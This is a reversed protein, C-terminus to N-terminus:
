IVMFYGLKEMGLDEFIVWIQIKPKFVCWRAVRIQIRFNQKQQAPHDSSNPLFRGFHFGFHKLPLSLHELSLTPFPHYHHRTIMATNSDAHLLLRPPVIAGPVLGVITISLALTNCRWPYGLANRL